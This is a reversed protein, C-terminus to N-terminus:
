PGRGLLGARLREDYPQPGVFAQLLAAFLASAQPSTGRLTGNVSIRLAGSPDQDIDVVDGKRVKEVANIQAVTRALQQELTKREAEPRDPAINRSVGKHVAKSLETAPVDFLMRLQLRKPGPLAVAREATDTRELLYLGAAYGKFWGASRVGTGNLRLETEGVLLRPAFRQGEVVVVKDQAQAAAPLGSALALLLVFLLASHLQPSRQHM